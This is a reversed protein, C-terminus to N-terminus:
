KDEKKGSKKPADANAWGQKKLSKENTPDQWVETGDKHKMYICKIRSM